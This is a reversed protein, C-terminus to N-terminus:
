VWPIAPAHPPGGHRTQQTACSQTAACTRRNAICNAAHPAKRLPDHQPVPDATMTTCAQQCPARPKGPTRPRRTSRNPTRASQSAAQGPQRARDRGRHDGEDKGHGRGGQRIRRRRLSVWVGLDLGRHRWARPRRLQAPIDRGAAQIRAVVELIREAAVLEAGGLARGARWRARRRLDQGSPETPRVHENVHVAESAARAVARADSVPSIVDPQEQEIRPPCREILAHSGPSRTGYDGVGAM